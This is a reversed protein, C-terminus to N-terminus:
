ANEATAARLWASRGRIEGQAASPSNTRLTLAMLHPAASAALLALM